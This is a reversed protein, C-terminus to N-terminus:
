YQLTSDRFAQLANFVVLFIQSSMEVGPKVIISLFDM